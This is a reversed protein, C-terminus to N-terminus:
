REFARLCWGGAVTKEEPDRVKAVQQLHELSVVGFYLSWEWATSTGDTGFRGDACM